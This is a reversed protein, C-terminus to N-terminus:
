DRQQSRRTATVPGVTGGGSRRLACCSRVVLPLPPAAFRRHMGRAGARARARWNRGRIGTAVQQLQEIRPHQAPSGARQQLVLVRLSPRVAVPRPNGQRLHVCCCRGCCCCRCCCRCGCRVCRAFLPRHVVSGCLRGRGRERECGCRHRDRGDGRGRNGRRSGGNGQGGARLKM